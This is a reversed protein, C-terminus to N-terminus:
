LLDYLDDLSLLTKRRTEIIVAEDVASLFSGQGPSGGCKLDEM